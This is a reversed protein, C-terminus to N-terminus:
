CLSYFVDSLDRDSAFLNLSFKNLGFKLKSSLMAALVIRCRLNVKTTLDEILVVVAHLLM